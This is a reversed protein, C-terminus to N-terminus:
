VTKHALVEPHANAEGVTEPDDPWGPTLATYGEQEFMTAWRDWSSPLLWLGHVFVVPKRGTANAREVQRAEHETITATGTSSLNSSGTTMQDELLPLRGPSKYQRIGRRHPLNEGGRGLREARVDSPTTM